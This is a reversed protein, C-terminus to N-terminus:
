LVHAAFLHNRLAYGGTLSEFHHPTARPAPVGVVQERRLAARTLDEFRKEDRQRIAAFHKRSELMGSGFENVYERSRERIAVAAM